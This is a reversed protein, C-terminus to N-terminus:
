ILLIIDNHPNTRDLKETKSQSVVNQHSKCLSEILCYQCSSTDVGLDEPYTDLRLAEWLKNAREVYRPYLDRLENVDVYTIKDLLVWWVGANAIDINKIQTALYYYLALQPKVDYENRSSKIDLLTNNDIIDIRGEIHNKSDTITLEVYDFNLTKYVYNHVTNGIQAYVDLLYFIKDHDLWEPKIKGKYRYWTQKPCQIIDTVAITEKLKRPTTWERIIRNTLKQKLESIYDRHSSSLQKPPLQCKLTDVKLPINPLNIITEKLLETLM